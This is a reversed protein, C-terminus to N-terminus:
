RSVVAPAAQDWNRFHGCTKLLPRLNEVQPIGVLADRRESSGM